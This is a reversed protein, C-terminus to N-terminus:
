GIKEPKRAIVVNVRDHRRWVGGHANVAKRLGETFASRYPEKLLIHDANTMAMRVYEVATMDTDYTFDAVTPTEFGYNVVAHKDIKCTYPIEPRFYRDYIANKAEVLERSNRALDDGINAIMVLYGGPNLLDFSRSFAIKEPIWQITAASFVTDFKTDGFDWTCFDGNVFRANEAGAFRRLLFDYLHEGLELGTYGCGSKLLSETAQGTGPGIELVTKGMGLGTERFIYEFAEGCYRPRNRDFEEPILDFVKRFDM